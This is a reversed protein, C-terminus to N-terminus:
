KINELLQVLEVLLLTLFVAAQAGANFRELQGEAHLGFSGLGEVDGAFRCFRFVDVADASSHGINEALLTQHGAAQDLATNAHDLNIMGLGDLAATTLKPILM